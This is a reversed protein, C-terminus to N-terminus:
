GTIQGLERDYKQQLSRLRSEVAPFFREPWPEGVDIPDCSLGADRIAKYITVHRVFRLLLAEFEQDPQALHVNSEIIKVMVDHNPLFFGKYLQNDVPAHVSDDSTKKRILHEWIVNNKQLHLYLPWYFQSLQRELFDIRKQRALAEVQERRKWYLDWLSKGLFGIVAALTTLLAKEM